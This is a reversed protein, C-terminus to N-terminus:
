NECAASETKENRKKKKKKLCQYNKRPANTM